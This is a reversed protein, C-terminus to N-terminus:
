SNICVVTNRGQDKAKYLGLDAQKVIDKYNDQLQYEAVGLSITVQVVQAQPQKTSSKKTPESKSESKSEPMPYYLPIDSVVQRIKEALITAQAQNTEPLFILFEEGGWRSVKDMERVSSQLTQAIEQLVVDGYDHGYTDNLTKFHDIDLLIVSFTNKNRKARNMELEFIDHLARRNLLGTLQDRTALEKVKKYASNKLRYAIFLFVAFLTFFSVVGYLYLISNENRTQELKAEILANEKVALDYAAQSQDFKEKASLSTSEDALDKYEIMLALARQYNKLSQYNKIMPPYLELRKILQSDDAYLQYAQEFYNAAIDHMGLNQHSEALNSVVTPKNIADGKENTIDLAKLYYEIAKKDEGLEAYITAKNVIIAVRDFINHYHAVREAQNIAELASDYNEQAIFMAALNPYLEILMLDNEPQSAISQQTYDIAKDYNKMYFNTFGLGILIKSSAFGQVAIQIDHAKLINDLGEVMKGQRVLSIGYAYYSKSSSLRTEDTFNLSTLLYTEAESFKGQRYQILGLHYYIDFKQENALTQTLLTLAKSEEAEFHPWYNRDTSILELLSILIDAQQKPQEAKSFDETLQQYKSNAATKETSPQSSVSNENANSKNSTSQTDAYSFPTFFLAIFLLSYLPM